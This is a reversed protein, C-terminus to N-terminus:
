EDSTNSIVGSFKDRTTEPKVRERKDSEAALTLNGRPKYALEATFSTGGPLAEVQAPSKLEYVWTGDKRIQRAYADEGYHKVLAKDAGPKWVRDSSSEVLKYPLGPIDGGNRELRLKTVKKLMKIRKEVLALVTMEDSLQEETMGDPPLMDKTRKTITEYGSTAKPCPLVCRQFRCHEGPNFVLEGAREMAPLLTFEAWFELDDLTLEATRIPGDPHFGRPQVITTRIVVKSRNDSTVAVPWDARLEPMKRIVGYAYYKLQACGEADVQVGVGHKYDIVHIVITDGDLYLGFRDSTGGFDEHVEPNDLSVETFWVGGHESELGRCFDIYRQAADAMEQTWKIEPEDAGSEGIHEWADDGNILCAAGLEHTATGETSYESSDAERDEPIQDDLAISGPCEIIKEAKSGSL